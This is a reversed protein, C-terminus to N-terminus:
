PQRVTKMLTNIELQSCTDSAQRGARSESSSWQAAQEQSLPLLLVKSSLSMIVQAACPIKAYSIANRQVEFGKRRGRRELSSNGNFERDKEPINETASSISISLSKFFEKSTFGNWSILSLGSM